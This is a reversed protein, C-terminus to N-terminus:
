LITGKIDSNPYKLEMIVNLPVNIYRGDASTNAKFNFTSNSYINGVKEEIIVNVVDILGNVKKLSDYIKTISFPEGLEPAISLDAKIQNVADTLIDYKSRENSGLATFNISYNVIKADVIDISDNIMKSKAIWTKINNKVTSNPITLLGKEDECIVYVNLNRKLSNDDRVVNVRKVSGFKSPMTYILSKYDQTTVARNQTAFSNQIRIKLENSDIVSTDGLISSENNVELSNIVIQKRSSELVNENIFEFNPSTVDTLSNISFNSGFQSNNYRYTVILNTNSPAVGFKDSSNLRSPDFSDNTIYEKGFTNLVVRAPETLMTNTDNLMVESSAGFQLFTNRYNREVVFRRPVMYPKIVEKALAYDSANRNTISKYVINQSLYDVEYYENGETDFVSVIEVIDLQSLQIKKFKEYDGISIVESSIIGSIVQGYAKVAYFTPKGSNSDVNVVRFENKPNDFRVDENLIFKAGNRTSFTSGKKLIPAYSLNPGLGYNNAPIKIYFSALGTSSSSNSYKYGLQNGIKIINDFEAATDLFSENAQYDLYFSLIDGVYAVTDLMLSGFSAENFDKYTSEYYKRAHEVLDNRISNFDRSTYKIPILKKSM